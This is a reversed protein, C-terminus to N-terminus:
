AQKPQTRQTYEKQSLLLPLSHFLHLFRVMNEIRYKNQETMIESNPRIKSEKTLRNQSLWFIRGVMSHTHTEIYECFEGYFDILSVILSEGYSDSDYDIGCIAIYIM